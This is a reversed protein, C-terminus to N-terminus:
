FDHFKVRWESFSFSLDPSMLIVQWLGVYLLFFWSWAELAQYGPSRMKGVMERHVCGRQICIAIVLLEQTARRLLMQKTLSCAERKEKYFIARLKTFLIHQTCKLQKRRTDWSFPVRWRHSNCLLKVKRSWLRGHIKYSEEMTNSNTCPFLSHLFKRLFLGLYSVLTLAMIHHNEEREGRLLRERM